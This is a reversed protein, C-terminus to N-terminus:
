VMGLHLLLPFRVEREEHDGWYLAIDRKLQDIPNYGNQKIFHKVASWTDLYGTLHEFTWKLKHQFEPAPIEKFPFPITQYNEDLYKRENDWYSGIINEYFNVILLDIERSVEIKGYGIVCFLANKKATRYM